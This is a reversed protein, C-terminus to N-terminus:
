LKICCSGQDGVQSRDTSLAVDHSTYLLCLEEPSNADRYYNGVRTILEEGEWGIIMAVKEDVAEEEKGQQLNGEIRGQQVFPLYTM